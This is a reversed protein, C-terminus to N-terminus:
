GGRMVKVLDEHLVEQMRKAANKEIASKAREWTGRGSSAFVNTRAKRTKAIVAGDRKRVRYGNFRRDGASYSERGESLVRMPGRAIKRPGVEVEHSSRVESWGTIEIPDGRRWNSLSLDGLDGRVANEVDAESKKGVKKLRDANDDTIVAEIAKLKREVRNFDATGTM